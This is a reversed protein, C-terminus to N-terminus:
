THIRSKIGDALLSTSVVSSPGGSSTNMHFNILLGIPQVM